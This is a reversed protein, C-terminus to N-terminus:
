NDIDNLFEKRDDGSLSLFALVHMLISCIVWVIFGIILHKFKYEHFLLYCAFFPITNTVIEFMAFSDVEAKVREGKLQKINQVFFEKAFFFELIIYLFILALSVFYRNEYMFGSFIDLKEIFKEILETFM